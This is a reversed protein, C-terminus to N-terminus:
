LDRVLADIWTDAGSKGQLADAIQSSIGSIESSRVPRRHDAVAGTISPTSELVYLRSMRNEGPQARRRSAFERAYRVHGPMSLLFDSDLSLIVDAKDFHYLSDTIRGSEPSAAHASDANVPEYQHWQASPFQQLIQKIQLALTPSTITETLIRLG